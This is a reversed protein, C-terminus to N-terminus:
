KANIVLVKSISWFETPNTIILSDAANKGTLHYSTKPHSTVISVKNKMIPIANLKTIDVRTFYNKNMDPTLGKSRGLGMFGGAKTIIKKDKLERTTGIVYYATNLETTKEEIVQQKQQNQTNLNEVNTNLDVVKTNLDQVKINMKALEDKLQVIQAEKEENQKNLNDIMTELEVSHAGSKKLKSRLSAVMQRNKQMLSYIISIDGKIQEKPAGKLEANGKTTKSIIMEKKKISDLNSQIDNFATVFQMVNSDKVNGVSLLSDNKAKLRAIEEKQQNCGAALIIVPIVLVLFLKKM